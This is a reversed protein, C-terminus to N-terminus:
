GIKRRKKSDQAIDGVKGEKGAPSLRREKIM